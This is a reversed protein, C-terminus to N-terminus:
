KSSPFHGATRRPRVPREASGRYWRSRRWSRVKVLHGEQDLTQQPSRHHGTAGLYKTASPWSQSGEHYRRYSDRGTASHALSDFDENTVIVSLDDSVRSDVGGDRGGDAVVLAEFPSSRGVDRGRSGARDTGGADDPRARLRYARFSPAASSWARPRPLRVHVWFSWRGDRFPVEMPDLM